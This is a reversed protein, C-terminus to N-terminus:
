KVMWPNRKRVSSRTGPAPYIGQEMFGNHSNPNRRVRNVENRRVGGIIVLGSGNGNAEKLCPDIYEPHELLYDLFNQWNGSSDGYKVSITEDGVKEFRERIGSAGSSVSQVLLWRVCDLVTNYLIISFQDPRNELDYCVKWKNYFFLIMSDPMEDETLGGLFNRVLQVVEEDTM